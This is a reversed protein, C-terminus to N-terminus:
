IAPATETYLFRRIKMTATKEFPETMIQIASIRSSSRVKENVYKLIMNKVAEVERIEMLSDLNEWDIVGDAVCVLGVLKGSRQVVIAEDIEDMERFINEIEEPYINEGSPGLIMNSLRGKIFYRGSEDVAALDNTRFWGDDTFAVASRQPDLYYGPMVNAGRAVIEGEGTEPNVNHLKLEVGRVAKGAAGPVTDKYCAISLLPSTETLGYGIYYPFRAAHLFSEVEIDLKAGGIGLFAMRGGFAKRLEMGVLRCLMAHANEDLWSLTKSAKIKPLVVGRYVKEIILPVILMATPRVQSLAKMLVSPTPPKPLYYVTSGCAFPYIMGLSMEYAHALPLVSLMVDRTGLKYVGEASILQSCLNTHTLMVGKAKGSTGSTYILVALDEPSPNAASAYECAPTNDEVVHPYRARSDSEDPGENRPFDESFAEQFCVDGQM